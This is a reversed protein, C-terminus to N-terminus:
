IEKRLNYNLLRSQKAQFYINFWYFYFSYLCIILEILCPVSCNQMSSDIMGTYPLWCVMDLLRSFWTDLSKLKPQGVGIVLLLNFFKYVLCHQHCLLIFLSSHNRCSSSILRPFQNPQVCNSDAGVRFGFQCSLTPRGLPLWSLSSPQASAPPISVGEEREGAAKGGAAGLALLKWLLACMMQNVM